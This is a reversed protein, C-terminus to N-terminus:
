FPIDDVDSFTRRVRISSIFGEDISTTSRCYSPYGSCGLFFEGSTRNRRIVRTRGCAKCTVGEVKQGINQELFQLREEHSLLMERDTGVERDLRQIIQIIKNENDRIDTVGREIEKIREKNLMRGLIYGAGGILIWEIM